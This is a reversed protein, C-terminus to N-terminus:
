WLPELRSEVFVPMPGNWNSLHIANLYPKVEPDYTVTILGGRGHHGDFGDRGSRGDNGSLGSPSGNGGMGSRGGRGGHGGSGARGGDAHVYLSGDAPDLLFFNQRRDATVEIQLLPTTSMRYAVKIDVPQADGGDSGNQGDSGDYGSGGNGGAIPYTPDISGSSGMSGDSGDSGSMGDMGRRGSFDLTFKTNYRIPIDVDARLDPHSPVTVTVHGVKGDSIRPDDALSVKGHADVTVVSSTVVLDSWMVKGDGMGAARLVEGNPQTVSVVLQETKGPLIGPGSHLTASISTIPTTALPTKMKLWVELSTCGSLVTLLALLSFFYRSLFIKRLSLFNQHRTIAM